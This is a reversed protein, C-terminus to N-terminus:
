KTNKACELSKEAIKSYLYIDTKDSEAVRKMEYYKDTYNLKNIMDKIAQVNVETLFDSNGGNNVHDMGDWKKFVCPVKSACAQEWLVSHQGPFVVLDAAFYYDYVRNSDIWGIFITNKSKKIEDILMNQEDSIKGFLILKVNNNLEQCARVLVDINKNKDLKGGSVILFDSDAIGYEKRIEKRIINKNDLKIEEDDAGMILVDTKSSPVNFVEEAYKRRWPTVGYVKAIYKDNFRYIVSYFKRALKNRITKVNGGINYDLHNDMVIVCNPNERKYKIVDFLTLSVLGHFFIMDPKVKKLIPLVNLMMFFNTVHKFLFNRKNLRYVHVGYENKYEVPSCEVIGNEGHMDVGVIIGVKNGMKSQYKPLLNDQYGWGETYNSNPAIHMIKM